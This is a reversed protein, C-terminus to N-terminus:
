LDFHYSLPELTNQKDYKIEDFDLFLWNWLIMAIVDLELFVKHIYLTCQRLRFDTDPLSKQKNACPGTLPPLYLVSSCPGTTWLTTLKVSENLTMKNVTKASEIYLIKINKASFIRTAKASCFSSVNKEAFFKLM